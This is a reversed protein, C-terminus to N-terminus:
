TSSAPSTSRGTPHSRRSRASCRRRVHDRALRDPHADERRDCRTRSGSRSSKATAPRSGPARRAATSGIPNPAVKGSKEVRRKTWLQEFDQTFLAVLQPSDVTLIVNEERRWSDDTWNTSGSWLSAGDRLVYKHHMLDPVGPIGRTDFPLSEVLEPRTRPPPPVPVRDDADVNYAFRTKVGRKGRTRSRAASSTARGRRDPPHRLARPRADAAGRLPLAALRHAVDIPEQGGDTLTHLEIVRRARPRRDRPERALDGGPRAAARRGLDRRLQEGAAPVAGPRAMFWWHLHECGEGWRCVHVRGIDGVARVAREIRLLLPGLEARGSPRSRTSTSTSARSSCCSWPCARPETRPGLRWHEDTWIFADDPTECAWCDVGGEGHRPPEREVPPQLPRPRLEGDFPGSEWTEVPPTTLAGATRAHFQEPTEPM